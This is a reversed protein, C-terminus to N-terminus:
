VMELFSLSGPCTTSIIPIGGKVRILQRLGPTYVPIGFSIGAV